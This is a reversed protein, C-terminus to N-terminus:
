SSEGKSTQSTPDRKLQSDDSAQIPVPPETPVNKDALNPASRTAATPNVVTPNASAGQGQSNLQENAPRLPAPITHAMPAAAWTSQPDRRVKLFYDRIVAFAFTRDDTKALLNGLAEVHQGFDQTSEAHLQRPRGFIPIGAVILMIGLIAGHLTIWNLPWVTLLEIGKLGPVNETNKLVLPDSSSELFGIHSGSPLSEFLKPTLARGAPSVAGWNLTLEGQSLVILHSQKWDRHDVRFCFPIGDSTAILSSYEYSHSPETAADDDLSDVMQKAEEDEDEKSEASRLKSQLDPNSQDSPLIRDRLTLKANQLSEHSTWDGKWHDRVVPITKRDYYFWRCWLRHGESRRLWNHKTEALARSLLLPPQNEPPQRSAALEWYASLADFDRGIFILVRGEKEKLWSEFWDIAEESPTEFDKPAWVIAHLNRTRESLALVRHPKHGAQECFSRIVSLGDLATPTLSNGYDVHPSNSDRCGTLVFISLMLIPILRHLIM